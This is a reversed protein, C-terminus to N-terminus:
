LIGAAQDQDRISAIDLMGLINKVSKRIEFNAIITQRANQAIARRADPDLKLIKEIGTMVGDDFPEVLFGNEGDRIVENSGSVNSAICILGTSMAETLAVSLGERDSPLVFIDSAQLLEPVNEVHGLLRVRDRCELTAVTREIEEKLPGIGAILLWVDGNSKSLVDFAKITRELRKEHSLRATSVMVLANEPINQSRRWNKRTKESPCYMSVDVGHYAVCIKEARCGYGLLVDKVAESVALIRIALQCRIREMWMLKYWWFGVGPIFGLYRSSTKEPPFPWAIHETMYVKGRTAVFAALAAPLPIETINSKVIVVQDPSIRKIDGFWSRFIQLFGGLVPLSLQKVAVPLANKRITDTFLDVTSALVVDNKKYDIHQLWDLLLVEIGGFAGPRRIFLIRQM